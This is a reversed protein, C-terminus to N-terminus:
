WGRVKPYRSQSHPLGFVRRCGVRWSRSGMRRGGTTFLLRVGDSVDDTDDDVSGLNTGADTVTVSTPVM